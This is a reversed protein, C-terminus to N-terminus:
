EGSESGVRESGMRVVGESEVRVVGESGVVTM